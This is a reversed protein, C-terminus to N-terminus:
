RSKGLPTGLPFFFTTFISIEPSVCQSLCRIVRFSNCISLYMSLSTQCANFQREMWAVYQTIIAPADGASVFIHTATRSFQSNKCKRNSYSSFQQHYISVHQSLNSLCPITKGNMCCIAHYDCPRRWSFCFHPSRYTFVAIKQVQLQFLQFVTSSLHTCATLPKVLMSYDKWEHLMYQTIIAPADGPFVFIHAAIRSFPSKKCKLNSYSPFQELYIPVHQLPNPLCQITKENM